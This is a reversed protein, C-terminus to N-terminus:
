AGADVGESLAIAEIADHTDDNMEQGGSELDDGKSERAKERVTTIKKGGRGVEEWRKGCCTVM